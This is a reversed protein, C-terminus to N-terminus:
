RADGHVLQDLQAQIHTLDGIYGWHYQGEAAQAGHALVRTRLADLTELIAAQQAYYTAQRATESTQTTHQAM